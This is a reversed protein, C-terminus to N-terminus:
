ETLVAKAQPTGIGELVECARIARLQDPTMVDAKALLGKIRERAEAPRRCPRGREGVVLEGAAALDATAKERDRFSAADLGALRAAVWDAGKITAVPMQDKLNQRPWGTRVPATTFL